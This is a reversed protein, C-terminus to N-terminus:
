RIHRLPTRAHTVICTRKLSDHLSYLASEIARMLEHLDTTIRAHDHRAERIPLLEEMGYIPFGDRDVLPGRLGPKGPAALFQMIHEIRQELESKRQMLELLVKGLESERVDAM